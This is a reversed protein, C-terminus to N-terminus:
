ARRRRKTTSWLVVVDYNRGEVSLRWERQGNATLDDFFMERLAGSPPGVLIPRVPSAPDRELAGAFHTLAYQFLNNALARM